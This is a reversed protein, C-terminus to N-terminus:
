LGSRHCLHLLIGCVDRVPRGGDGRQDHRDRRVIGAAFFPLLQTPSKLMRIPRPLFTFRNASRNPISFGADCPLNLNIRVAAKLREPKRPAPRGQESCHARKVAPSRVTACGALLDPCGMKLIPQVLDKWDRRADLSNIHKPQPIPGKHSPM